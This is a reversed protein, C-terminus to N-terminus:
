VSFSSQAAEHLDATNNFREHQVDLWPKETTGCLCRRCILGEGTKSRAAKSYHRPEQLWERKWKWDGKGAVYVLNIPNPEEAMCLNLSRCMFSMWPRVPSPHVFPLQKELFFGCFFFLCQQIEM